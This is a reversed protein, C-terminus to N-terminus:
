AHRAEMSKALSVAYIAAWQHLQYYAAVLQPRYLKYDDNSLDETIFDLQVKLSQYQKRDYPGATWSSIAACLHKLDIYSSSPVAIM